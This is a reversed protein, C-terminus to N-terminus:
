QFYTKQSGPSRINFHFQGTQKSRNMKINKSGKINLNLTSYKFPFM